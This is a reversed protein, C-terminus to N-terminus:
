RPIGRRHAESLHASAQPFNLEADTERLYFPALPAEPPRGSCVRGLNSLANLTAKAENKLLTPPRSVHATVQKAFRELTWWESDGIALQLETLPIKRAPSIPRLEGLDWPQMFADGRKGDLVLCTVGSCGPNEANLAFARLEFSSYGWTKLGAIGLGEATAIGVRLSTFGGPGICAAVGCIDGRCADAEILLEDISPLLVMSASCSPDTLARKTWAGDEGLLALHIWETATDLALLM